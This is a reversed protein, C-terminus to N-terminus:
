KWGHTVLFLTWAVQSFRHRCRCGPWTPTRVSRGLGSRLREPLWAACLGDGNWDGEEWTAPKGTEYKRDALVQIMDLSSFERDKNADGSWFHPLPADDVITAEGQSDQINGGSANSLDVFFSETSEEM